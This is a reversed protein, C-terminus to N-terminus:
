SSYAMSLCFDKVLTTFIHPQELHVTHGATPVIHLQAQPLLQAMRQAIKTFKIDLAGAILLVPIHLTPLQAYLSPQVGTGIGRLSQALGTAKNQLRQAHLAEKIESPLTQQSVFLPLREWREVFAPVGEREISTAIAEDSRRREEREEINEIGPSASELILARFFGSFATYLAIRGGMSYGLLISQGEHVEMAQLVALIDHQHREISYCAPDKPADSQGHGPLDIAIIHLGYEALTDLHQGWSAASGTFGHLLVLTQARNSTEGRQELAIRIGNM